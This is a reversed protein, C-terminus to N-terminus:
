LYRSSTMSFEAAASRISLVIQLFYCYPPRSAHVSAVGENGVKGVSPGLPGRPPFSTTAPGLLSWCSQVCGGAGNCVGWERGPGRPRGARATQCIRPAQPLFRLLLSAARGAPAPGRAHRPRGPRPECDAPAARKM